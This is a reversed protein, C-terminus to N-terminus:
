EGAVNNGWGAKRALDFLLAGDAISRLRAQARAAQLSGDPRRWIFRYGDHTDGSPDQYVGWQFCLRWGDSPHDPHVVENRIAFCTAAM